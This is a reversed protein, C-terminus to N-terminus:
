ESCRPRAEETLLAALPRWVSRRKTELGLMLVALAGITIGNGTGLRANVASIVVSAVMGFVVVTQLGLLWYNTLRRDHRLAQKDAVEHERELLDLVLHQHAIEKQAPPRPKPMTTKSQDHGASPADTAKPPARRAVSPAPGVACSPCNPRRTLAVAHLTGHGALVFLQHPPEGPETAMMRLYESQPDLIGLSLSTAMHIVPLISVNLAAAERLPTEDSRFASWCHYCPLRPDLQVVVEGGGNAYLAPFLAPIGLALARRGIQRQAKQDDTTAVILDADCLMQDLQSDPLSADVKRAFAKTQLGPIRGGLYTALAEGKNHGVYETPLAHRSLNATELRDHDIFRLQGVGSNGLEAAVQSGVAGVGVVVVLQRQLRDIDVTKPIRAFYDGTSV